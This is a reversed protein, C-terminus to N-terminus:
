WQPKIKRLSQTHAQHNELDALPDNSHQQSEQTIWSDKTHIKSIKFTYSHLSQLDKSITCLWVQTAKVFQIYSLNSHVLTFIMHELRKELGERKCLWKFNFSSSDLGDKEYEQTNQHMQLMSCTQM